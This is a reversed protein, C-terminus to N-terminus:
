KGLKKAIITQLGYVGVGESDVYDDYPRAGPIMEEGIFITPAGYVAFAEAETTVGEIRGSKKENTLCASFDNEQLGLQNVYELSSPEFPQKSKVKAFLLARMEQWKGQDGACNIAAAAAYAVESNKVFPRVFIAIDDGFEIVAKDLNDALTASFLNSYDEYVFIKLPADPRGFVKDDESVTPSKLVQFTQAESGAQAINTVTSSTSNVEPRSVVVIVAIIGLISAAVVLSLNAKKSSIKLM